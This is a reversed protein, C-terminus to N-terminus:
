WSLVLLNPRPFQSVDLGVVSTDGAIVQGNGTRPVVLRRIEIARRDLLKNHRDNRITQQLIGKPAAFDFIVSM